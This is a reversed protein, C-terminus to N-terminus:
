PSAPGSSTRVKRMRRAVSCSPLAGHVFPNEAVVAINRVPLAQALRKACQAVPIEDRAAGRRVASGVPNVVGSAIKCTAVITELGADGSALDLVLVEDIQRVPQRERDTDLVPCPELRILHLVQGIALLQVHAVAQQHAGAAETVRLAPFGGPALPADDAHM